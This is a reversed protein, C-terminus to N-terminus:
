KKADDETKFTELPIEGLKQQQWVVNYFLNIGVSEGGISIGEITMEMRDIKRELLFRLFIDFPFFFSTKTFQSILKPFRFNHKPTFFNTNSQFNSPTQPLEFKILSAPTILLWSSISKKKNSFNHSFDTKPNHYTEFEILLHLLM